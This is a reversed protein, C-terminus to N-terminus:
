LVDPMYNQARTFSDVASIVAPKWSRFHDPVKNIAPLDFRYALHNLLGNVARHAFPVRICKALFAESDVVLTWDKRVGKEEHDACILTTRGRLNRLLRSVQVARPLASPPYAFSVALLKCPSSDTATDATGGGRNMSPGDPRRM